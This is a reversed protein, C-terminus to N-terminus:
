GSVSARPLGVLDDLGEVLRDLLDALQRLEAADFRAFVEGLAERATGSMRDILELGAATPAVVVARADGDGRHRQVLGGAELRDISRTATSPDVRLAAAVDGMRARGLSVVAELADHQAIDLADPGTGYIRERIRAMATGRRLERMAVAVRLQDGTLQDRSGM